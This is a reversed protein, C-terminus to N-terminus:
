PAPRNRPLWLTFTSGEGPESEAEIEGGHARAIQRAISLGLGAGGQTLSQTRAPDVRHFREFVLPLEDKPIGIGTDSVELGAWDDEERVSVVVNGGEPTYKVANDLLIAAAQRIRMRDFSLEVNNGPPVYEIVVKDGAAARAAKAADAAIAGLDGPTLELTADADGRALALLGEVLGSMRESEDLIAAVGERAAKSDELGWDKLMRAYGAISTLPTRLEHSADAAFRRQRSLAEEQRTFAAELRGLLKNITATLLGIEDKPRVVPLRKSLDSETIKRASRAVASVPSLAARALLYAGGVSLLVAVIIAGILIVTFTKLTETASEYSRGAEVVHASGEPPNVPVAYVYDPESPSYSATGGVPQGTDLAESWVPDQIEQRPVSSVTQNLIQGQGDRIVVFVGGLSLREAEDTALDEGSEVTEAAALARDRADEEIGSLLAGRLLLFLALGLALLVAGIVLANFLTLRWRIPL